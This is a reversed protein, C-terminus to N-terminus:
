DPSRYSHIGVYDVCKTILLNYYYDGLPSMITMCQNFSFCWCIVNGQMKASYLVHGYLNSIKYM